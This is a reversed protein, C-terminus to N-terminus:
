GVPTGPTRARRLGAAREAARSRRRTVRSILQLWRRELPHVARRLSSSEYWELARGGWTRRPRWGAWATRDLHRYYISHHVSRSRYAWPKLTGSFHLIWPDSGPGRAGAAPGRGAGPSLRDLSVSWNWREDLDGWKGALVANLAEQDHFFVREGFRELYALAAGAVDDRRWRAVDIVMVGANFYPAEGRLGLDAHGAVGFRSSLSWVFPDRAALAHRDDFALDHLRSLDGLVVLDCDLWIVRDLGAPLFRDVFLKNYTTAPMRGWLPLGPFTAAPPEVWHVEGGGALSREVRRRSEDGIGDAVVYAELRREPALNDAASRLTVALPLAYRADAACAV